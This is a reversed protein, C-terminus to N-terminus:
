YGLFTLLQQFIPIIGKVINIVNLFMDTSEHQQDGEYSYLFCMQNIKISIACYKIINRIKILMKQMLAFTVFHKNRDISNQNKSTNKANMVNIENFYKLILFFRFAMLFEFVNYNAYLKLGSYNILKKDSKM